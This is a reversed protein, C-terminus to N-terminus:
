NGMGPRVPVFDIKNAASFAKKPRRSFGKADLGNKERFVAVADDYAKNLVAGTLVESSGDTFTVNVSLSEPLHRDMRIFGDTDQAFTIM